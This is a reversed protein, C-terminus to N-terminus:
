SAGKARRRRRWERHWANARCQDDCFKRPRGVKQREIPRGCECCVPGLTAVLMEARGVTLGKTRVQRTDGDPTPVTEIAGRTITRRVRQRTSVLGKGELSRVARAVSSRQASTPPNTGFIAFALGRTDATRRRPDALAALVGREVRGLGRSM